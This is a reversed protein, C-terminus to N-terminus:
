VYLFHIGNRNWHEISLFHNEPGYFVERFRGLRGTMVVFLGKKILAAAALEDDDGEGALFCFVMDPGTSVAHM